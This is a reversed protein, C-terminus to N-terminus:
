MVLEERWVLLIVSLGGVWADLSTNKVIFIEVHCIGKCLRIGYVRILIDM